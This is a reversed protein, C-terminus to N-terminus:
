HFVQPASTGFYNCMRWMSYRVNLGGNGAVDIVRRRMCLLTLPDSVDELPWEQVVVFDSEEFPESRSVELKFELSKSAYVVMDEVIEVELEGEDRGFGIVGWRGRRRIGATVSKPKTTELLGAGAGGWVLGKM